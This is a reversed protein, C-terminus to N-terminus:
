LLAQRSPSPLMLLFGWEARRLRPYPSGEDLVQRQSVSVVAQMTSFDDM